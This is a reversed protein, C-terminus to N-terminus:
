FDDGLRELVTAPGHTRYFHKSARESGRNYAILKLSRLM